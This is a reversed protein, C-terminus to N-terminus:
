LAVMKKPKATRPKRKPKAPKSEPAAVDGEEKKKANVFGCRVCLKWPRKGKGKISLIDLGCKPCKDSLRRIYGNQPLSFTQTCKPYSSCGVFRKGAKSNRIMLDGGCPCKGITSEERATERVVVLLEGGIRDENAKFHKLIKELESQAESVVDDTKLKGGQIDEMEEEFKRTLEVSTIEPCYKGLTRVVSQGLKTVSISDGDIYNRDYLTQLILARTGKTGLGLKEMEKLISAQTYRNPPQTEKDNMGIKYPRVEDGKKAKPLTQEKLKSYPKYFDM